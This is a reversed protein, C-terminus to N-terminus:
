WSNKRQIEYLIFSEGLREKMVEVDNVQRVKVSIHTPDVWKLEISEAGVGSYRFVLNTSGPRGGVDHVFVYSVVSAAPPSCATTYASIVIGQGSPINFRDYQFCDSNEQGIRDEWPRTAIAFLTSVCIGCASAVLTFTKRRRKLRNM